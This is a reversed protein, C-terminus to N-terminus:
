PNSIKQQPQSSSGLFGGPEWTHPSCQEACMWSARARQCCMGHQEKNAMGAPGCKQGTRRPYRRLHAFLLGHHLRCLCCKWTSHVQPTKRWGGRARRSEKYAACPTKQYIPPNKKRLIEQNREDLPVTKLVPIKGAEQLWPTSTLNRTACLHHCGQFLATKMQPQSNLCPLICPQM